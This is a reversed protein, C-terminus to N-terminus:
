LLAAQTGVRKLVQRFTPRPETPSLLGLSIVYSEELWKRLDSGRPPAFAASRAFGEDPRETHGDYFDDSIREVDRLIHGFRVRQHLKVLTPEHGLLKFIDHYHRGHRGKEPSEPTWVSAVHHVAVLKEILTRRPELVRVDFPELDAFVQGALEGWRAIMPAITAMESPEQGDGIRTELYVVDPSIPLSGARKAGGYRLDDGRSPHHGRGPPRRESWELDLIAAVAETVGRLRREAVANSEDARPVVLIDVDESFRNIIGYGKSLSTGGKLVFGGRQTEALSRLVQTVWYDKEIFAAPEGLSAAARDIATQFDADERLLM